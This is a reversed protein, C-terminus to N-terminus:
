YINQISDLIKRRVFLTPNHKNDMKKTSIKHTESNIEVFKNHTFYDEITEPTISFKTNGYTLNIENITVEKEEKTGLNLGLLVDPQINEPFEFTMKKSKENENLKQSVSLNMFQNNNLFVDNAFFKFVDPHSTALDIELTLKNSAKEEVNIEEVPGESDSNTKEENKCAILLIVCILLLKIKM